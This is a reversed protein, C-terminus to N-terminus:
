YLLYPSNYFFTNLFKAHKLVNLNSFKGFAGAQGDFNYREFLELSEEKSLLPYKKIDQIFLKLADASSFSEMEEVILKNIQEM